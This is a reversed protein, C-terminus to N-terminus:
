MNRSVSYDSLKKITMTNHMSVIHEVQEADGDLHVNHEIYGTSGFISTKSPNANKEVGTLLKISKTQPSIRSFIEQIGSNTPSVILDMNMGKRKMGTKMNTNFTATVRDTGTVRSVESGTGTGAASPKELLEM